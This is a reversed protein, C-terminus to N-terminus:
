LLAKLTEKKTQSESIGFDDKMARKGYAETYIHNAQDCLMCYYMIGNRLIEVVEDTIDVTYQPDGDEDLWIMIMRGWVNDGDARIAQSDSPPHTWGVIWIGDFHFGTQLTTQLEKAFHTQAEHPDVNFISAEYNRLIVCGDQTDAQPAVMWYQPKHSGEFRAEAELRKRIAPSKWLNNPLDIM